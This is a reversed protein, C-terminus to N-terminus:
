KPVAIRFAVKHALARSCKWSSRTYGKWQEAMAVFEGRGTMAWLVDLQHIHLRHYWPAAIHVRPHPYLDYRSGYGLDWLELNDALTGVVADFHERSRGDRLGLAVDHYGWAAFIAGNLVHSAPETPYEEPLPGGRLERCVGGDAVGRGLLSLARIAADAFSADASELYLRVLLSAGEGQAMGSIWGPPLAYTHPFPLTHRWAGDLPGGREQEQVLYRGIRLAASLWPEGDGALYRDYCGLGWQCTMVHLPMARLAATDPPESEAKRRLDIYYGRPLEYSIATGQDVPFHDRGRLRQVINM